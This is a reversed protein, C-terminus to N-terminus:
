DFNEFESETFAKDGVSVTVAMKLLYIRVM